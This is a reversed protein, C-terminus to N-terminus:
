FDPPALSAQKHAGTVVQIFKRAENLRTTIIQYEARKYM